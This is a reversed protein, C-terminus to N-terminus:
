RLKRSQFQHMKLMQVTMGQGKTRISKEKGRRPIVVEEVANDKKQRKVVQESQIKRKKEESDITEHALSMSYTPVWIMEAKTYKCTTRPATALLNEWQEPPKNKFTDKAEPIIMFNGHKPHAVHAERM